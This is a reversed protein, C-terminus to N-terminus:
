FAEVCDTVPIVYRKESTGVQDLVESDPKLVTGSFTGAIDQNSDGINMDAHYTGSAGSIQTALRRGGQQLRRRRASPLLQALGNVKTQWVDDVTEGLATMTDSKEAATSITM